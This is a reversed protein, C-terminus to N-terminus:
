SCLICTHASYKRSKKVKNSLANAFLITIFYRRYRYAADSRQAITHLLTFGSTVNGNYEIAGQPDGYPGETYTVDHGSMSWDPVVNSVDALGYQANM